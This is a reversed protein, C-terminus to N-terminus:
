QVSGHENINERFFGHEKASAMSVSVVNYLSGNEARIEQEYFGMKIMFSILETRNLVEGTSSNLWSKFQGLNLHMEDNYVFPLGVEAASQWHVMVGVHRGAYDSIGNRIINIKSTASISVEKQALLIWNLADGWTKSNIGTPICSAFCIKKFIACSTVSEPSPFLVKKPGSKLGFTFEYAPSDDSGIRTIGLVPAGIIKSLAKLSNAKLDEEVGVSQEPQPGPVPDPLAAPPPIYSDSDEPTKEPLVFAEQAAKQSENEEPRANNWTPDVYSARMLKEPQAPAFGYHERSYYALTRWHEKSIGRVHCFFALAMDYSSNSPDKFDPRNREMLQRMESSVKSLEIIDQPLTAMSPKSLSGKSPTSASIAARNKISEPIAGRIADLSYRADTHSLVSVDKPDTIDKFNKTGPVRYVRALDYTSDLDYGRRAVESKIYDSWRCALKYAMDRDAENAYMFHQDLLWYVHLGNGSHVIISPPLSIGQAFALAAQQTPFYKKVKHGDEGYDLDIAIAAMGAATSNSVRQYEGIGQPAIALSFYVDEKADCFASASTAAKEPTQESVSLKQPLMYLAIRSEGLDDGFIARFFVETTM